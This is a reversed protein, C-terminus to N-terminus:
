SPPIAPKSAVAGGGIASAVCASALDSIPAALAIILPSDRLPSSRFSRFRTRNLARDGSTFFKTLKRLFRCLLATCFASILEDCITCLHTQQAGIAGQQAGIGGQQAGHRLRIGGRRLDHVRSGAARRNNEALSPLWCIVSAPTASRAETLRATRAPAASPRACAVSPLAPLLSPCSAFRCSRFTNPSAPVSDIRPLLRPVFLRM